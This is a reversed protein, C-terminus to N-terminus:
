DQTGCANKLQNSTIGEVCLCINRIDQMCKMFLCKKINDQIYEVFEVTSGLAM